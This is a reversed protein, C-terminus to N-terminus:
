NGRLNCLDKASRSIFGADLDLVVTLSRPLKWKPWSIHRDLFPLYATFSAYFSAARYRILENEIKEGCSWTEAPQVPARYVRSLGWSIV